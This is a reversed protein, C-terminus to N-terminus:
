NKLLPSNPKPFIALYPTNPHQARTPSRAETEGRATAHGRQPQPKPSETGPPSPPPCGRPARLKTITQVPIFMAATQQRPGQRRPPNKPNPLRHRRHWRPPPRPSGWGATASPAPFSAPHPGAHAGHGDIPHGRSRAMGQLPTAASVEGVRTVGHWSGGPVRPRPVPTEAAMSSSSSLCTLGNCGRPNVEGGPNAPHPHQAPHPCPSPSLSMPIPVATGGPPQCVGFGAPHPTGGCIPSVSARPPHSPTDAGRPRAPTLPM